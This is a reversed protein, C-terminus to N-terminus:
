FLPSMFESASGDSFDMFEIFLLVIKNVYNYRSMEKDGSKGIKKEHIRRYQTQCHFIMNLMVFLM